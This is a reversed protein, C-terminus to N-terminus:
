RLISCHVTLRNDSRYSYRGVNNVDDALDQDLRKRARDVYVAKAQKWYQDLSSYKRV